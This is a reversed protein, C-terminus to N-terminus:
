GGSVATMIVVEDRPSLAADLGGRERVHTSNIFLNLHRRVAGTEDCVGRHLNPYEREIAALLARVTPPSPDLAIERAGGCDARLPPPIYVSIATASRSM